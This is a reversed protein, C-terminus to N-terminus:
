KDKAPLQESLRSWSEQKLERYSTEIRWREEYQQIIERAPYAKADM